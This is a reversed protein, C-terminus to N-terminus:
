PTSSPRAVRGTTVLPPFRRRHGLFFDTVAGTPGPPLRTLEPDLRSVPPPAPTKSEGTWGGLEDAPEDVATGNTSPIEGTQTAAADIAESNSPGVQRQPVQVKSLM